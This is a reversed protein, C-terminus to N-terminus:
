SPNIARKFIPSTKDSDSNSRFYQNGLKYLFGCTNLKLNWGPFNEDFCQEGNSDMKWTGYNGSSGYGQLSASTGSFTGDPKFTLKFEAKGSTTIGSVTAPLLAVWQDKTVKSGGQDLLEGLNSQAHATGMSLIIEAAIKLPQKVSM